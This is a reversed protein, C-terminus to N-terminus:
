GLVRLAEPHRPGPVRHARLEVGPGPRRVRPAAAGLAEEVQANEHTFMDCRRCVRPMEELFQARIRRYPEGDYIEAVSQRRVNGLPDAKGRAMCCLFVDGNWAVFLHLWPVYCTREEFYGRAYRGRASHEEDRETRGFPWVLHDATGFGARERAQLAVPAVYTNFEAIQRRTLRHEPDEGREDVPM